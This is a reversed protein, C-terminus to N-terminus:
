YDPGDDYDFSEQGDEQLREFFDSPLEDFLVKLLEGNLKSYDPHFEWEWSEEGEKELFFINKFERHEEQFVELECYNVIDEMLDSLMVTYEGDVEDYDDDYCAMSGYYSNFSRGTCVEFTMKFTLEIDNEVPVVECDFEGLEFVPKKEKRYYM